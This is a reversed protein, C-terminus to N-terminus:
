PLKIGTENRAPTTAGVRPAHQSGGQHEREDGGGGHRGQRSLVGDGGAPEREVGDIPQNLGGARADRRRVREGGRGFGADRRRSPRGIGLQLESEHVPAKRAETEGIREAHILDLHCRVSSEQLPVINSYRIGSNNM